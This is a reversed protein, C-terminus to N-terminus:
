RSFAPQFYPYIEATHIKRNFGVQFNDPLELQQHTLVVQFPSHWGMLFFPPFLMIFDHISLQCVHPSVFYM